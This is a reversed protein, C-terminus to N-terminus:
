GKFILTLLVVMFIAYVPTKIPKFNFLKHLINFLSLGLLAPYIVQLVPSLLTIIGEFELSSFLLSSGLILVLCVEYKVKERLLQKQLFESCIVSLAIMTTLCTLAISMSVVLGAHHGLVIHGLSGLLQGASVGALADSYNAAVYSFGVYISSLLFAGILCAKFIPLIISRTDNPDKVQSKLKQYILASFFFSALLDM